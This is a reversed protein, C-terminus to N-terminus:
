DSPRDALLSREAHRCLVDLVGDSVMHWGQPPPALRRRERGSEFCLWGTEFTQKLRARTDAGLDDRRRDPSGRRDPASRPEPLDAPTTRRESQRRREIWEPKVDWVQWLVGTADAFERYAM